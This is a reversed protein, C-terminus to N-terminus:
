HSCHCETLFSICKGTSLNAWWFARILDRSVHSPCAHFRAEMTDARNSPFQSLPVTRSLFIHVNIMFSSYLVKIEYGMWQHVNVNNAIHKSVARLITARTREKHNLDKLTLRDIPRVKLKQAEPHYNKLPM